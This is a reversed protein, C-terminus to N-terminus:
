QKEEKNLENYENYDGPKDVRLINTAHECTKGVYECRRCGLNNSQRLRCVEVIKKINM